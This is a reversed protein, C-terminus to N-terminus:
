ALGSQATTVERELEFSIERLSDSLEKPSPRVVDEDAELFLSLEKGMQRALETIRPFGLSGGSGKLQHSLFLLAPFSSKFAGRSSLAQSHHRIIEITERVDTLYDRRLERLEQDM